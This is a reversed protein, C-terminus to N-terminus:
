AGEPLGRRLVGESFGERFGKESYFGHGAGKETGKQSGKGLVSGLVKESGKWSHQTATRGRLRAVLPFSAHMLHHVMRAPIFVNRIGQSKQRIHIRISNSKM